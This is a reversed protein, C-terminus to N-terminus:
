VSYLLRQLEKLVSRVNAGKEVFAQALELTTHKDNLSLLPLLDVDSVDPAERRVYKELIVDLVARALLNKEFRAFFATHTRHLREVRQQRTVIPEHFVVHLLLDLPDLEMLGQQYALEDLDVGEDQLREIIENRQEDHLWRSRLDHPTSVLSALTEIACERYTGRRLSRGDADLEYVVEGVVKLVRGNRLQKVM